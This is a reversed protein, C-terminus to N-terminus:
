SEVFPFEGIDIDVNKELFTLTGMSHFKIAPINDEVVWKADAGKRKRLHWGDPAQGEIYYKASLGLDIISDNKVDIAIAFSSALLVFASFFIFLSDMRIDEFWRTYKFNHEM